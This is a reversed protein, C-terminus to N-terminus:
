SGASSERRLAATRSRTLALFVTVQVEIEEALQLARKPDDQGGLIADIQDSAESLLINLRQFIPQSDM